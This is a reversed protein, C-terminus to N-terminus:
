QGAKSKIENNIRILEHQSLLQLVHHLFNCQTASIQRHDNSPENENDCKGM